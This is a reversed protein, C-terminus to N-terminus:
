KKGGKGEATSKYVAALAVLIMGTIIAVAVAPGKESPKEYAKECDNDMDYTMCDPDCKGEPIGDCYGDGGGSKCDKPCNGFNEGKGCERNGCYNSLRRVNIGLEKDGAPNYVRIESASSYYPTTVVITSKDAKSVPPMPAPRIQRGTDDFIDLPPAYSVDRPFSFRGTYLTEGRYSVVKLSYDGQYAPGARLGVVEVGREVIKGKDYKLTIRFSKESDGLAGLVLFVALMTTIRRM